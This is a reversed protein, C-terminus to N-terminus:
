EAFYPATLTILEIAKNKAGEITVPENCIISFVFSRNANQVVGMTCVCTNSEVDVVFGYKVDDGVLGPDIEFVDVPPTLLIELMQRSADASVLEGRCIMNLIEATYDARAYNKQSGSGSLSRNFGLQLGNAVAFSKVAERGKSADGSGITETLRDAAYTDDNNMMAKVDDLVSALDLTGDEAMQFVTGMIFVQTMRNATMWDDVGCNVASGVKTNFAPDIVMVEWESTLGRLSDDLADKLKADDIPNLDKPQVPAETSPVVDTHVPTDTGGPYPNTNETSALQPPETTTAENSKKQSKLILICLVAALVLMCMTIGLFIDPKKTKM